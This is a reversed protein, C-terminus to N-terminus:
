APAFAACVFKHSSGGSAAADATIALGTQSTAFEASAFSYTETEMQADVDEILNTWTFTTTSASMVCGFAVGGANINLTDSFPDTADSGTDTAMNSGAGFMAYVGIACRNQTGSWVVVIDGSAGTPVDAACIAAARNGTVESISIAATVGAVTVSTLTVGAAAGAVVCVVIKRDAAETGLSQGAFTYAGTDTTSATAAIFARTVVSTKRRRKGGVTKVGLGGPKLSRRFSREDYQPVAYRPDGPRIIEPARPVIIAPKPPIYIADM